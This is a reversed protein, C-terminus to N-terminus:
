EQFSRKLMPLEKFETSVITEINKSTKLVAEIANLM